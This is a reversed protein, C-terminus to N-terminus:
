EKKRLILIGVLISPLIGTIFLNLISMSFVKTAPIGFLSFLTILTAERTGLGSISVPILSVVTGISLIALFYTFPLHIELSKAILYTIFYILIWNILNLIFFWVFYRKKPMDEYFSDFTIKLKDRNKKPVFRGFFLKLLMKSRKKNIFVLTMLFIALFIGIFWNIPLFDIKEQYIFFFGVVIFFISATDLVKDLVFNSIGKGINKTYKKLYDARIINGMRSPTVLGYFNSIFNIKFAEYFPVEIKQAKAIAFWKLTQIIFLLGTLSISLILYAPNANFIENFIKFINIKLILYVFLAIGIIPLYTKWNM